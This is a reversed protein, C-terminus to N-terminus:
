TKKLDPKKTSIPKVSASFKTLFFRLIIYQWITKEENYAKRIGDPLLIFFSGPLRAASVLSPRSQFDSDPGMGGLSPLRATSVLSPKSHFESEPGMGGSSPLRATSVLSPRSQFESEPGMGGSSPLRATSM